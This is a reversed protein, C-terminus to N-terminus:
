RMTSVREKLMVLIITVIHSCGPHFSPHPNGQKPTGKEQKIKLFTKICIHLKWSNLFTCPYPKVDSLHTGSTPHKWFPTSALSAHTLTTPSGRGKHHWSTNLICLSQQPLKTATSSSAVLRWCKFYALTKTLNFPLFVSPDNCTTPM